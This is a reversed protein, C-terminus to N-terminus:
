LKSLINIWKFLMDRVATITAKDPAHYKTELSGFSIEDKQLTTFLKVVIRLMPAVTRNIIIKDIVLLRILLALKAVSLSTNIKNDTEESETKVPTSISEFYKVEENIWGNIQDRLSPMNPNYCSNLKLPLQNLKKQEFRLFGIKEKKTSLSKTSYNLWEYEYAIFNDENFNMYYLGAIIKTTSMVIRPQLLETLLNKQYSLQTYTIPKSETCVLHMTCDSIINVLSMDVDAQKQYANKVRKVQKKLSEKAISLYPEPVKENRDFYNGFFDEIFDLTSQLDKSIIKYLEIISDNQQSYKCFSYLIDLLRILFSQNLKVYQEKDQINSRKTLNEILIARLIQQDTESESILLQIEEATLPSSIINSPNIKGAILSNWKNLIVSPSTAELSNADEIRLHSFLLPLQKAENSKM